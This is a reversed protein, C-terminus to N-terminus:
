GTERLGQNASALLKCTEHFQGIRGANARASKYESRQQKHSESKWANQFDLRCIRATRFDANSAVASHEWSPPHTLWVSPVCTGIKEALCLFPKSGREGTSVSFIAEGFSFFEPFCFSGPANLLHGRRSESFLRFYPSKNLHCRQHSCLHSCPRRSRGSQLM